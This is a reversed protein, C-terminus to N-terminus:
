PSSGAVRNRCWAQGVFERVSDGTGLNLTIDVRAIRSEPSGDCNVLEALTIIGDGDADCRYDSGFYDFHASAVQDVLISDGGAVSSERWIKGPVSGEGPEFRYTITELGTGFDVEFTVTEAQATVIGSSQKIERTMRNLGIRANDVAEATDQSSQWYRSTGFLFTLMGAMVVTLVGMAVLIEVM